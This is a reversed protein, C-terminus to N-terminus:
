EETTEESVKGKIEKIAERFLRTPSIKHEKLYDIDEKMVSIAINKSEKIKIKVEDLEMNDVM